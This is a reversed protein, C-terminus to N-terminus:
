AGANVQGIVNRWFSGFTDNLYFSLMYTGLGQATLDPGRNNVGVITWSGNVDTFVPGGSAGGTEECPQVVMGYYNGFTSANTESDTASSWHTECFYQWNGLDYQPQSFAGATPYGISFLDDITPQDWTASYSGIGVDGPYQGQANPQLEIVGWDAGLLGNGYDSTTWMNKVRWTGYPATPQGNAWTNGPIVFYTAPNYYGVFGTKEGVDGDHYNSYVCHGATLVIGNELMSGSCRSCTTGDGPNSCNWYIRVVSATPQGVFGSDIRTGAAAAVPGSLAARSTRFVHCKARHHPKKVCKRVLTHGRLFKCTRTGRHHKRSWTCREILKIHKAATPPAPPPPASKSPPTTMM